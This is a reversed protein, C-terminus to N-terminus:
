AANRLQEAYNVGIMRAVHEVTQNVKKNTNLM